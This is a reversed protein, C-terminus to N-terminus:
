KLCFLIGGKEVELREWKINFSIEKQTMLEMMLEPVNEKQDTWMIFDFYIYMIPRPRGVSNLPTKAASM